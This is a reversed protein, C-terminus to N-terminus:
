GAVAVSEDADGSEAVPPTLSLVSDLSKV